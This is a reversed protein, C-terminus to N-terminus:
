FSRSFEFIDDSIKFQTQKNVKVKPIPQQIQHALCIKRFRVTCLFCNLQLKLFPKFRYHLVDNLSKQGGCNGVFSYFKRPIMSKTLVVMVGMAWQRWAGLWGVLACVVVVTWSKTMKRVSFGNYCAAALLNRSQSQSLLLQKQPLHLNKQSFTYTHKRTKVRTHAPQTSARWFERKLKKALFSDWDIYLITHNSLIAFINGLLLISQSYIRIFLHVQFNQM